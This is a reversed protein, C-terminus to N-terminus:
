HMYGLSYIQVLFSVLTVVVLMIVTLGDILLGFETQYIGFRFWPLSLETVTSPNELVKFFLAISHVLGYAITLIGLPAGKLPLWRGFFFITLASVLPLLIIWYSHEIM